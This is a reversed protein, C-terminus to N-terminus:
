KDIREIKKLIEIQISESDSFTYYNEKLIYLLSSLTLQEIVVSNYDIPLLKRPKSYIRQEAKQEKLYFYQYIMNQIEEPIMVLERMVSESHQCLFQINKETLHDIDINYLELLNSHEYMIRDEGTYNFNTNFISLFEPISIHKRISIDLVYEKFQKLSIRNFTINNSSSDIDAYLFIQKLKEINWDVNLKPRFRQFNSFISLLSERLEEENIM